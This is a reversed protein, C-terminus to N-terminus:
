CVWHQEPFYQYIPCADISYYIRALSNFSANKLYTRALNIIPHMSKYLHMSNLIAYVSWDSNTYAVAYNQTHNPILPM